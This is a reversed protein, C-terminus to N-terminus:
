YVVFKHKLTREEYDVEISETNGCLDERLRNEVLFFGSREKGTSDLYRHQIHRLTGEQEGDRMSELHDKLPCFAEETFIYLYEEYDHSKTRLLKFDNGFDFGIVEKIVKAIEEKSLQRPIMALCIVVVFAACLLLFSIIVMFWRPLIIWGVIYSSIIAINRLRKKWVQHRSYEVVPKDVIETYRHRPTYDIM